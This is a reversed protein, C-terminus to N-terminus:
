AIIPPPADPRPNRRLCSHACNTGTPMPSPPCAPFLRQFPYLLHWLPLRGLGAHWMSAGPQQRIDVGSAPGTCAIPGSSRHKEWRWPAESAGRACETRVM